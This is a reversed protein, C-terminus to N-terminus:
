FHDSFNQGYFILLKIVYDMSIQLIYLTDASKYTGNWRLFESVISSFIQM